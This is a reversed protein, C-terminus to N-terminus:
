SVVNQCKLNSPPIEVVRVDNQQHEKRVTGSQEVDDSLIDDSTLWVFRLRKQSTRSTLCEPPFDHTDLLVTGMDRNSAVRGAARYM